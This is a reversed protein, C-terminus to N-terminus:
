TKKSYATIKLSKKIGNHSPKIHNTKWVDQKKKTSEKWDQYVPCEDHYAGCGESKISKPKHICNSECPNGKNM